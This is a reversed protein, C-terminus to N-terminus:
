TNRRQRRRICRIDLFLEVADHAARRRQHQEADHRALRAGPFFEAGAAQEVAPREGQPLALDDDVAGARQVTALVFPAHMDHGKRLGRLKALLLHAGRHAAAGSRRTPRLGFLDQNRGSVRQM